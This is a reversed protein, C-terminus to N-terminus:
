TVTVWPADVVTVWIAEAGELKRLLADLCDVSHEVRDDGRGLGVAICGELEWPFNANHLEIMTRGPVDHLLLVTRGLRPSYYVTARYRGARIGPHKLDDVPRELTFGADGGDLKLEGGISRLTYWHRLVEIEATHSM